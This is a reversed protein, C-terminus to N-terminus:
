TMESYTSFLRFSLHVFFYFGAYTKPTADPTVFQYIISRLHTPLFLVVHAIAIILSMITLQKEAQKVRHIMLGPIDKLNVSPQAHMERSKRVARIIVSNMIILSCFPILGNVVFYLYVYTQVLATQKAAAACGTVVFGFLYFNPSNFLFIFVFVTCLLIKARKPTCLFMARHPAIIAFCKDFTMLAVQYSGNYVFIFILPGSIKCVIDTVEHLDHNKLLWQHLFLLMLVNDNISIAMMYTCTSLHRNHKMAMVAMSLSNEILGVPVLVVFFWQDLINAAKFMWHSAVEQLFLQRPSIVSFNTISNETNNIM